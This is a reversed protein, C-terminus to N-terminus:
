VNNQGGSVAAPAMRMPAAVQAPAMRMPAASRAPAVRMPRVPRAPVVDGAQTEPKGLAIPSVFAPVMGNQYFPCAAKCQCADNFAACTPAGFGSDRWVDLTAQTAEPDYSAHGECVAHAFEDSEECHTALGLFARWLGYDGGNDNLALKVANCHKAVREVSFSRGEMLGTAPAPAAKAKARLHPPLGPPLGRARRGMEVGGKAREAEIWSVFRADAVGRVIGDPGRLSDLNGCALLEVLPRIPHWATVVTKAKVEGVPHGEFWLRSGMGSVALAEAMGVRVYTHTGTGSRSAVTVHCGQGGLVRNLKELFRAQMERDKEDFDLVVFQPWVGDYDASRVGRTRSTGPVLALPWGNTVHQRCYDLPVPADKFPIGKVPQKSNPDTCVFHLRTGRELLELMLDREHHLYAFPPSDPTPTTM